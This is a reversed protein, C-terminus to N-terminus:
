WPSPQNPVAKTHLPQTFTYTHRHTIESHADETSAVEQAVADSGGFRFSALRDLRDRIPLRVRIVRTINVVIVTIVVIVDVLLDM